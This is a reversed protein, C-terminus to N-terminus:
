LGPLRCVEEKIDRIYEERRASDEDLLSGVVVVSRSADLVHIVPHDASSFHPAIKVATHMRSTTAGGILLPQKLGALKMQKAVDVMEDLSPTILGSLGVVDVNEEQARKIIAEYPQMVGMDIVKYNNCGLVVGVINKGIDHVDGKVTALLVKGAFMSDDDGDGEIGMAALKARKEEEMYPILHAVAKKMVRASKIVQPLFMKGSGFLDGVISMGAMLPGEIVELPRAMELRAEETDAEIYNPIGKVLAHSLRKAVPKSRWEEAAVKRGGGGGKKLEEMKAREELSRELLQETAEPSKNFVVDTVLKLLSPEIDDYVQLLGANVIGMDIGAQIAHYLFVSHMAERIVDVGRFGFSLNSVGGSIKAGPCLEKIARTAEIFDVAYSITTNLRSLSLRSM